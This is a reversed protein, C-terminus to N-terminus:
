AGVMAKSFGGGRMRADAVAAKTAASIQPLLNAIEARVTQQVGTTVNINQVITMGGGGLEHNPIVRGTQGPVFLEPGREGVMYPRGGTTVGGRAKGPLPVAQNYAQFVGDQKSLGSIGKTIVGFAADVIYKQILLELLSDIVSKITMKIADAFNKAGTIADTFSRALGRMGKDALNVLSTQLDDAQGRATKLREMFSEFATPVYTTLSDGLGTTADTTSGISGSLVDIIDLIKKFNFKEFGGFTRDSEDGLAEITAIQEELRARLREQDKILAENTGGLAGAEERYGALREEVKRLDERLGQLSRTEITSFADNLQRKFNIVFNGISVFANMVSELGRIATKIQNLFEGALREGFATVSGDASQIGTKVKTTMLDAFASIAPALAAVTQRTVGAFLSQLRLLADNADEVGSAANNSMVVGLDRAEDLLDSLGERGLALTNVLAAGESDFLKFALRLPKLGRREADEFADALQLMQQDLPLRVLARADIGLERLASKAEGTGQAAEAARRQFRQLAMNLTQVEVGSIKGAYQLASLAETTTGIKSATKALEDTARLSQAILVGLGGAGAAGLIATKLNFFIRSLQSFRKQIAGLVKKTGDFIKILIGLEENKRAM